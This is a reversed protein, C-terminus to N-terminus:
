GRKRDTLEVFAQEIKQYNHRVVGGDFMLLPVKVVEYDHECKELYVPTSGMKLYRELVASPIEETAVVVSDVIAGHDQLAKVHDEVSYGDTEGPQSMANCIYFRKAKTEKLAKQIGPIIVNPLISTYVSGIGYVVFDAELIAQVAEPTAKVEDQYFVKYIHNDVNPINAEGKVIVGDDMKAYLQIIQTTAPIIQGKVNLVESTLSVAKMFSGCQETLATLILNGLSHGLVDEETNNPDEFRYEMLERFMTEDQALSVMVNRIDGMAPIHFKRILRGTSGGDDAVTVIATIDFEDLHKIARLITSQGHGGGIVVIKKRQSEM